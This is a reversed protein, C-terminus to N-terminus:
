AVPLTFYFTAGKGPVSEAWIRGGHYDVIRKCTALGIGTGPYKDSAHLRKFLVFISSAYKEDFGIGNDAVAFVWEREKREATIHITAEHERRFKVANGILNQFLQVLLTRSGRIKPLRRYTLTVQGEALCAGLNGEAVELISNIDVIETPSEAASIRSHVLLDEILSQMRKSGNVIHQVYELSSSPLDKPFHELLLESSLRMVRLPEQLDHSAVFAFRELQENSVSLKRAHDKFNELTEANELSAGALTCLYAALGEEEEGFFTQIEDHFALLCLRAKGSVFIPACLVSTTRHYGDAPNPATIVSASLPKKQEIGDHVLNLIEAHYTMRGSIEGQDNVPLIQFNEIRLLVRVAEELTAYVASKDQSSAIKRGLQLVRDFRDMLSLSAPESQKELAQKGVLLCLNGGSQVVAKLASQVERASAAHEGQSFVLNIALFSLASEARAGQADAVRLSRELFHRALRHGGRMAHLYGLERLAHPLNNPYKEALRRAERAARFAQRMRRRRKAPHFLSFNELDLRLATALWPYVPVIYEQRFGRERLKTRATQLDEIAGQTDGESLRQIASAQLLEARSHVDGGVVDLAKAILDKPVKGAEAKSWVSLAIAASSHDGIDLADQYISQGLRAAESLNGLRYHCYAIHWNATNVEWRDGTKEMIRVAHQCKELCEVYRTSSYLGVGIFHLSQGEGWLDSLQKRIELSKEAYLIGRNFDPLLTAVPAHESYAQALEASPAYVEALNMGRLHAWGCPLRGREFWYSYAMRSHLRLALRTAEDPEGRRNLFWKPFLTHCAQVLLEWVLRIAYDWRHTPVSRGLRRLGQEQSRSAGGMDGQKFFLEGMKVDLSCRALTSQASARANEFQVRAEEYKGRLMLVDGLGESVKWRCDGDSSRAGREAILYQHEALELSHRERAIKAGALAFPLAKQTLGAMDYHYAIDFVSLADQSEILEAALQHLRRREDPEILGLLTERLKDHVFGYRGDQRKWILHRQQAESVYPLVEETTKGVLHAARKLDFEKGLIAAMKLLSLMEPPLRHFRSALIVAAHKSSRLDPSNEELWWGTPGPVLTRSEVLGYLIASIMFPSGESLTAILEVVRDPVTEGTMSHVFTRLESEGLPPLKLTQLTVASRLPHTTEVEESRFSCIVLVHAPKSRGWQLLLRVTLEDAWQCDDLIVIAPLTSSGLASLLANLARVNRIEGFTEPGVAIEPPAEDFLSQLEPLAACLTEQQDELRARIQGALAPDQRTIQRVGKAVGVLIQFPRQAGQDVGQGQFVITEEPSLARVLETLLRSKGGGSEAELLFLGGRGEKTKEVADLLQKLQSQRGVFAPDTLRTRVDALGVASISDDIGQRRGERIALFDKLAAEYSQYRQSPDKKLLHQIALSLGRPVKPDRAHLNPVLANLHQNFIEGLTAGRFPPKGTLAEFLLVGLSYLDSRHDPIHDLLGAQEPSLYEAEEAEKPACEMFSASGDERLAICSPHLKGLLGEKRAQMRQLLSIALAVTEDVNLKSHEFRQKLTAPRAPSPESSPQVLRVVESKDNVLDM